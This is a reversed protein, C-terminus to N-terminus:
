QYQITVQMSGSYNGPAQSAKVSLTAGMTFTLSGGSMVGTGSPTSSFQSLTMTNAGSTLVVGDAPLTIICTANARPTSTDSYTFSASTPTSTLLTVGGGRTRAGAPSITVTGGTGAVFRGFALPRNTAFTVKAQAAGCALLLAALLLKLGRGKRM